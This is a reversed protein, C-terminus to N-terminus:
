YLPECVLAGGVAVLTGGVDVAVGTGPPANARAKSPLPSRALPGRITPLPPPARVISSHTRGRAAPAVPTRIVVIKGSRPQVMRMDQLVRGVRDDAVIVRNILGDM